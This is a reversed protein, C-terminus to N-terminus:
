PCMSESEKRMKEKRFGILWTKEDSVKPPLIQPNTGKVSSFVLIVATIRSLQLPCKCTNLWFSLPDIM